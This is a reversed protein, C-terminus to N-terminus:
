YTDEKESDFIDNDSVFSEPLPIERKFEPLKKILKDTSVFLKIEKKYVYKLIENNYNKIKGSIIQYNFSFKNIKLFEFSTEKDIININSNNSSNDTEDKGIFNL